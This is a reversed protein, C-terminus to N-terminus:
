LDLQRHKLSEIIYDDLFRNTKHRLHKKLILFSPHQNSQKLFIFTSQLYFSVSAFFLLLIANKKKM